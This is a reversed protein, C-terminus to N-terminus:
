WYSICFRLPPGLILNFTEASYHKTPINACRDAAPSQTQSIYQSEAIGLNELTYLVEGSEASLRAAIQHRCIGDNHVVGRRSFDRVASLICQLVPKQHLALLHGPDVTGKWRQTNPAQLFSPYPSCATELLIHSMKYPHNYTRLYQFSNPERSVLILNLVLQLM